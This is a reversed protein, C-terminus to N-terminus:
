EDATLEAHERLVRNLDDRMALAHAMTVILVRSGPTGENIRLAVVHSGNMDENAPDDCSEVVQLEAYVYEVAVGHQAM